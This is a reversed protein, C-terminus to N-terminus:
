PNDREKQKTHEIEEGMAKASRLLSQYTALEKKLLGTDPAGFIAQRFRGALGKAKTKDIKEMLLRVQDEVELRRKAFLAEYGLIEEDNGGRVIDRYKKTIEVFVDKELTLPFQNELTKAVEDAHFLQEELQLRGAADDIAAAFTLYKRGRVDASQSTQEKSSQLWDIMKRRQEPTNPFRSKAVRLLHDANPTESAPLNQTLDQWVRFADYSNGTNTDRIKDTTDEFTLSTSSELDRDSISTNELIAAEARETTASNTNYLPEKLSIEPSVERKEKAAIRSGRNETGKETPAMDSPLGTARRKRLVNIIILNKELLQDSYKKIDLLRLEDKPTITGNKKELELPKAKEFVQKQELMFWTEVAALDKPPTDTLFQTFTENAAALLATGSRFDAFRSIKKAAEAKHSLEEVREVIMRRESQNVMAKGYPAYGQDTLSGLARLAQTIKKEDRSTLTQRFQQLEKPTLSNFQKEIGDIDIFDAAIPFEEDHQKDTSRMSDRMEFSIAQNTDQAPPPRRVTENVTVESQQPSKKQEQPATQPEDRRIEAEM